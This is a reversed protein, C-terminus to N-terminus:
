LSYLTSHVHVPSVGFPLFGPSLTDCFSFFPINYPLPVSRFGSQLDSFDQLFNQQWKSLLWVPSPQLVSTFSSFVSAVLLAVRFLVSQLLLSPSLIVSSPVPTSAAFPPKSVSVKEQRCTLLVLAASVQQPGSNSPVNPVHLFNHPPCLVPPLIAALSM